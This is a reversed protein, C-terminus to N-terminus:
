IQVACGRARASFFVGRGLPARFGLAITMTVAFSTLLVVSAWATIRQYVGAILSVALAFEVIPEV